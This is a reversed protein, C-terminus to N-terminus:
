YIIEGTEIKFEILVDPDPNIYLDNLLVHTALPSIAPTTSTGNADLFTCGTGYFKLVAVMAGSAPVEVEPAFPEGRKNTPRVMKGPEWTGNWLAYGGPSVYTYEHAFAYRKASNYHAPMTRILTTDSMTYHTELMVFRVERDFTYFVVFDDLEPGTPKTSFDVGKGDLFVRMEDKDRVFQLVHHGRVDKIDGVKTVALANKRHDYQMYMARDREFYLKIRDQFHYNYRGLCVESNSTHHGLKRSPFFFLTTFVCGDRMLWPCICSFFSHDFGDQYYAHFGSRDRQETIAQMQAVSLDNFRLTSFAM